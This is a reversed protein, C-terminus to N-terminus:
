AFFNGRYAFNNLEYLKKQYDQGLPSMRDEWSKSDHWKDYLTNAEEVFQFFRKIGGQERYHKQIALFLPRIDGKGYLAQEFLSFVMEAKGQVDEHGIRRGDVMGEESALDDAIGQCIIDIVGVQDKYTIHSDTYGFDKATISASKDIVGEGLWSLDRELSKYHFGMRDRPRRMSIRRLSLNHYYEHALVAVFMSDSHIDSTEVTIRGTIGDAIAATKPGIDEVIDLHSPSFKFPKVGYKETRQCVNEVVSEALRKREPTLFAEKRRGSPLFKELIPLTVPPLHKATFDLELTNIGITRLVKDVNFLTGLGACFLAMFPRNTGLSVAALAYEIVGCARRIKTYEIQPHRLFNVAKDKSNENM